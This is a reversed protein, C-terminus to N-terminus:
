VGIGPFVMDELARGAASCLRIQLVLYSDLIYDERTAGLLGVAEAIAEEEGELEVFNGIPTEDLMAHLTRGSPLGARYVTRYKQYRFWARYGLRELLRTIQEPDGVTTEIEVRKKFQSAPADAAPQAKYTLVGAGNASRVRLISLSKQLQRDPTDFLRNDEFHRPADIELAIGCSELREVGDLRLKIEIEHGSTSSM